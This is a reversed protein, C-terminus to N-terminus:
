VAWKELLDKGEHLAASPENSYRRGNIFEYEAAHGNKIFLVPMYGRLEGFLYVRYVRITYTTNGAVRVIDAGPCYERNDKNM